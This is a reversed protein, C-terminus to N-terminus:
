RMGNIFLLYNTHLIVIYKKKSCDLVKQYLSKLNFLESTIRLIYSVTALLPRCISPPNDCIAVCIGATFNLLFGQLRM